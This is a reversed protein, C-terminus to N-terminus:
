PQYPNYLTVEVRNSAGFIDKYIQVDSTRCRVKFYCLYYGVEFREFRPPYLKGSVMNLIQTRVLDPNLERRNGRLQIPPNTALIEVCSFYGSSCLIEAQKSSRRELLGSAYYLPQGLARPLRCAVWDLCQEIRVSTRLRRCGADGEKLQDSTLLLWVGVGVIVFGVVLVWPWRRKKRKPPAADM